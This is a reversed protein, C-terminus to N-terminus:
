ITKITGKPLVTNVAAKQLKVIIGEAIAVSIYKENVEAVKCLMGGSTIVEDGKKISNVLEKQDKARKSQPRWLLFYFIVLFILPMILMSFGGSTQETASGAAQAMADSIFLGM